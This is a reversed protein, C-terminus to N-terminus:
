DDERTTAEKSAFNDRHPHSTKKIPVIFVFFILDASERHTARM